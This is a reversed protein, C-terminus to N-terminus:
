EEGSRFLRDSFQVAIVSHDTVADGVIDQNVIQICLFTYVIGLKACPVSDWRLLWIRQQGKHTLDDTVNGDHAM